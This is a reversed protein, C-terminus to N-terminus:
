FQLTFTIFFLTSLNNKDILQIFFINKKTSSKSFANNIRSIQPYSFQINARFQHFKFRSNYM